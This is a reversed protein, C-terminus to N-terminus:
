PYPSYKILVLRTQTGTPLWRRPPYKNVLRLKDTDVHTALISPVFRTGTPLWSSTIVLYNGIHTKVKPSPSAHHNTLVWGLQSREM